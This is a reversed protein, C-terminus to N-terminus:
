GFIPGGAPRANMTPEVPLVSVSQLWTAPFDTSRSREQNTSIVLISMGALCGANVVGWGLAIAPGFVALLGAALAAVALAVGVIRPEESKRCVWIVLAWSDAPSQWVEVLPTRPSTTSSIGALGSFLVAGALVTDVLGAALGYAILGGLFGGTAAGLLDLSSWWGILGLIVVGVAVGGFIYAAPTSRVDAPILRVCLYGLGLMLPSGLAGILYNTDAFFFVHLVGFMMAVLLVGAFVRAVIPRTKDIQRFKKATKRIQTLDKPDKFPIRAEHRDVRSMM